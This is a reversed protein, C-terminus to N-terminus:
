FTPQPINAIGPISVPFFINQCFGAANTIVWPHTLYTQQVYSTNGQLSGNYLVRGGSYDLWYVKVTSSSNNVFQISTVTDGNISRIKGELSCKQVSLNPLASSIGPPLGANPASDAIGTTGGEGIRTSSLVKFNLKGDDNILSLPLTVDMGDPLVALSAAGVSNFIDPTGSYQLVQAQTTSVNVVYESGILGNDNAGDTIPAPNGTGPDQDTDLLFQVLTSTSFTGPAFRVSLKLLSGTVTASASVIDPGTLAMPFSLADGTPDTVQGILSAVWFPDSTTGVANPASAVLTYGSGAINVSLSLFTAIGNAATVATNTGSLTASGPNTGLNISVNIGALAAGMSDLARVQVPPSIPQGPAADVPQVVFTLNPPAVVTLGAALVGLASQHPNSSDQVIVYGSFNGIQTPTGSFTGTAQAFTIGPPLAGYYFWNLPATGGTATMAASYPKGQFAAPINTTTVKLTTAGGITFSPQLVGDVLTVPPQTVGALIDATNIALPAVAATVGTSLFNVITNKSGYTPGVARLTVRATQGPDLSFTLNKLEPNTLNVSTNTLEALTSFIQAATGSINAVIVNHTQQVLTCGKATPTTYVQRVILQFKAGAPPNNAAVKFSFTGSTNGNNTVKWTADQLSATAIDASGIDPSGIDPSGIDPSGIDPSGIDPSGIDPSGIDPSGIDPSGIDPSGIDPSGIDPSGIDPNRVNYSGIDPSGIDPSGIDPNYVEASAINTNPVTGPDIVSPNSDDPNLLVATQLGNTLLTGGTGPATIEAVNITVRANPKSSKVFVSRSITSRRGIRVDLSLQSALQVFSATADLSSISLRFSRQVDTSNQVFVTFARQKDPLLPKSNGLAGAYLGQTIRATYIDQNRSGTNAPECAPRQQTPDLVSNGSLTVPTYKTWDGNAPKKVNRNDTWAAHFVPSAILSSNFRWPGGPTDQVFNLASIGIYDGMFPVTGQQFIPLNPANFQLQEIACNPVTTSAGALTCDVGQRNRVGFAYQSVRASNFFPADAPTAQAVRVDLTHRRLLPDKPFPSADMIISTFIKAFNPMVLGLDGLMTRPNLESYLGSPLFNFHAATQDERQDYYLLALKGGAFTLSPMMQHGRGQSTPGAPIQDAIKPPTWNKGDNSTSVVIRADATASPTPYVRASWAVYVRGSNDIAITPVSSTRFAVPSSGPQFPFYSPVIEVPKSFAHGENVSKSIMISDTQNPRAFRRWAVYVAGSAPDIAISAGQYTVRGADEGGGNGGGDGQDDGQDDREGNGGHNLVVTRWNAGCDRSTALKLNTYVNTASVSIIDTYALYVNGTRVTQAPAGNGAPIFCSGAGGRPVDVAIWSKDLFHTNSARALVTTGLYRITDAGAKENNNDDIFRALFIASNGGAKREFAIGSYYAIGNTGFRVTSDAGASLGKLPSALGEASNDQPYGPLLTSRWTLGGDRSKFVGLWADAVTASDPDALGLEPVSPLDITRYDNAGALLHLPNRTSIAISPENQRQLFPDGGPWQIGSFMNVNPGPVQGPALHAAVLYLCVALPSFPRNCFQM